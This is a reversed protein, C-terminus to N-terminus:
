KRKSTIGFDVWREKPMVRKVVVGCYGLADNLEKAKAQLASTKERLQGKLIQQEEDMTRCERLLTNLGEVYAENLGKPTLIESHEVLGASMNDGRKLKNALSFSVRKPKPESGQTTTTTEGDTVTM